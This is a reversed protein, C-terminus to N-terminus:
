YCRKIKEILDKDIIPSELCKYLPMKENGNLSVYKLKLDKYKIYFVKKLPIIVLALLDFDSKRYENEEHKLIKKNNKNEIIRRQRTVGFSYSIKNRSHYNTKRKITSKVQIRYMKNKLDLMVLDFPLNEQIKFCSYGQLIIDSM